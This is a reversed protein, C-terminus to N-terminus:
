SATVDVHFGPLPRGPLRQGLLGAGLTVILEAVVLDVPEVLLLLQSPLQLLHLSFSILQPIPPQLSLLFLPLLPLLLRVPGRWEGVVALEGLSPVRPIAM